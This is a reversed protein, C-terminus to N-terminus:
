ISSLTKWSTGRVSEKHDKFAYIQEYRKPELTGLETNKGLAQATQKLLKELTDAMWEMGEFWRVGCLHRDRERKVSFIKM